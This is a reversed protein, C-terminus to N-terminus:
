KTMDGSLCPQAEAEDPDFNADLKRVKVWQGKVEEGGSVPLTKPLSKDFVGM